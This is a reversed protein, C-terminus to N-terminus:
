FLFVEIDFEAYVEELFPNCLEHWVVDICGEFHVDIQLNLDL